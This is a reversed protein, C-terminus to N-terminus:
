FEESSSQSKKARNVVNEVNKPLEEAKEISERLLKEKANIEDEDMKNARFDLNTDLKTLFAILEETTKSSLIDDGIEKLLWYKQLKKRASEVVLIQFCDKFKFVKWQMTLRKILRVALQCNTGMRGSKLKNQGKRRVMALKQPAM